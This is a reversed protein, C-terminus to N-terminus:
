PCTPARASSPTLPARRWISTDVVLQRLEDEQGAKIKNTPLQVFGAISFGILAV